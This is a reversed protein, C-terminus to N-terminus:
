LRSKREALRFIVFRKILFANIMFFLGMIGADSFIAPWMKPWDIILRTQPSFLRYLEQVVFLWLWNFIRAQVVLAAASYLSYNTLIREAIISAIFVTALNQALSFRGAELAIVDSCIGAAAAVLYADRRRNAAVLIVLVPIIPQLWFLPPNLFSLATAEFLGLLLGVFILFLLKRIKM